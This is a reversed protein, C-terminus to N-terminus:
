AVATEKAPVELEIGDLNSGELIGNHQIAITRLVENREANSLHWGNLTSFTRVENYLGALCTMQFNLVAQRPSQALSNIQM